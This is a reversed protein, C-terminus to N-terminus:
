DSSNKWQWWGNFTNTLAIPPNILILQWSLLCDFGSNWCLFLKIACPPPSNNHRITEWFETIDTKQQDGLVLWINSSPIIQNNGWLQHLQQQLFLVSSITILFPLAKWAWMIFAHLPLLPIVGSMRLRSMLHLHTSLNM